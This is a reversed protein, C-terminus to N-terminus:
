TYSFFDLFQKSRFAAPIGIPTGMFRDKNWILNSNCKSSASKTVPQTWPVSGPKELGCKFLLLTVRLVPWDGCGPTSSEAITTWISGFVPSIM